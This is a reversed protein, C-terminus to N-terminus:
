GTKWLVSAVIASIIVCVLYAACVFVSFIAISLASAGASNWGRRVALRHTALGALGVSLLGMMVALGLYTFMSANVVFERGMFGNLALAWVMFGVIATAVSVALVAFITVAVAIINARTM